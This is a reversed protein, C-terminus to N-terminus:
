CVEKMLHSNINAGNDTIIVKPIEFRCIINSRVFDVVAKKTVSKITKAEVWKTFYDIAVLISKDGNSAAPEIPGIVDIGWTVFPWLASMTHLESPPSHILDRHVGKRIYERIDHFWPEGDLEEEVVNCYAHQDRVQIHLPDIYSKDSHHLMSALTSLADAVENHIRPIYRLGLICAEYEFMNNTCYFCLQATIPYHHEIESILVAGIRVGKMNAAGDFFPKWGLKEAQEVEDIHMVEKDPFYKRLPEYEENVPNEALQDALAQAKMATQTVYIIDFETLLIKWKELREIPMLKKFIYKLPDLRSILYTTYSSLYHKLKQAVWTLACCTRELPTYKVEYSTFKKNLYYITQEKRCTIDHQGLVCSKIKDFAKQCEDIRYCYTGWLTIFATKEADEKDMLIQHYGTYCDVFSGIEHKACNDILIHINPLPFNDNPSAKNLDRYDVCVRTKDDKKPVPMVNALWTPYRTVRIVKPNLQKTIEEKIKVSMDTKFKRLKQKIPAFTPNTPLKHVVLNTSLGPMDDYTWAFIDKYEFLAKIIEEKIQPELHVSIKTERINDLDGLNIAETENLNPKPKEEFHSLEKSIEEFAEEEDYEIEDDCMPQLNRMCIMDNFGAYFSCYEKRTPLPTADWNNIKVKTGVFQVDAKSSGEGIEVM